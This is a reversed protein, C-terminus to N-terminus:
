ARVGTVFGTSPLAGPRGYGAAIEPGAYTQPRWGHEVLWDPADPGLGGKWLDTVEQGTSLGKARTVIDDGEGSPRHEFATESGPASLEGVTSLLVAAEDRALYIMLGEILWATPVVADFGAARLAGAWDERLDGPVVIRACRPQAAIGALVRAKFELVGPLDLEFLRLGQPWDLRFPRADLGAALLVVQACGHKAAALLFEDYFRTRIAVQGAFLRGLSPEGEPLVREPAPFMAKGAVFFAAAFPDGFLRDPRNSELARLAAVGLATRSVPPLESGTM